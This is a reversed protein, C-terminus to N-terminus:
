KNSTLDISKAPFSSSVGALQFQSISVIGSVTVIKDPGASGVFEVEAINSNM